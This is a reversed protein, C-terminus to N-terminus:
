LRPVNDELPDPYSFLISETHGSWYSAQVSRFWPVRKTLTGRLFPVPIVSCARLPTSGLALLLKHKVLLLSHM